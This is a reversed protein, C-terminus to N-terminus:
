KKLINLINILNDEEFSEIKEIVYYAVEHMNYNFLVDLFNHNSVENALEKDTYHWLCKIFFSFIISKKRKKIGTICNKFYKEKQITEVIDKFIDKLKLSKKEQFVKTLESIEKFINDDFIFNDSVYFIFIIKIFSSFFFLDNGNLYKFIWQFKSVNLVPIMSKKSLDPINNKYKLKYYKNDFGHNLLVEIISITYKSEFICKYLDNSKFITDLRIGNIFGSIIKTSPSAEILEIISETPINSLKINRLIYQIFTSTKENVNNKIYFIIKKFVNKSQLVEKYSTFILYSNDFNYRKDTYELLHLIIEEIINSKTKEDHINTINKQQLDESPLEDEFAIKLFKLNLNFINKKELITSKIKKKDLSKYLKSNKDKYFYKLFKKKYQFFKIEREHFSEDINKTLIHIIMLENEYFVSAKEFFYNMIDDYYKNTDKSGVFLDIVDLLYIFIYDYINSEPRFKQYLNFNEKFHDEFSSDSFMIFWVEEPTMPNNRSFIQYDIGRRYRYFFIQHFINYKYHYDTRYKILHDKNEYEHRKYMKGYIKKLLHLNKKDIYSLFYYLNNSIWLEHIKALNETFDETFDEDLPNSLYKEYIEKKCKEYLIFLTDFTKEIESEEENMNVSKTVNKIYFNIHPNFIYSKSNHDINVPIIIKRFLKQSITKDSLKQSITKEFLFFDKNIEEFCYRRKFIHFYKTYKIEEEHEKSNPTSYKPNKFKTETSFYKDIAKELLEESCEKNYIMNFLIIRMEEASTNKDNMFIDITNKMYHKLCFIKPSTRPILNNTILLEYAGSSINKYNIRSSVLKKSKTGVFDVFHKYESIIKQLVNINNKRSALLFCKDVVYKNNKHISEENMFMNEIELQPFYIFLKKILLFPIKKIEKSDINRENKIKEKMSILFKKQNTEIVTDWLNEYEFERFLKENDSTTRNNLKFLYLYKKNFIIKKIIPFFSKDVKSHLRRNKYRCAYIILSIKDVFDYNAFIPYDLKESAIFNWINRKCNKKKRFFFLKTSSSASHYFIKNFYKNTLIFNRLSTTDLYEFFDIIIENPLDAIEM